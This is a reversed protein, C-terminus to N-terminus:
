TIKAAIDIDQALKPKFILVKNRPKGLCAPMEKYNIM